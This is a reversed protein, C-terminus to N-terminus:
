SLLPHHPRVLMQYQPSKCIEMVLKAFKSSRNLPAANNQLTALLTKAATDDEGLNLGSQFLTLAM